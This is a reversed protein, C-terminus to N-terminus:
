GGRGYYRRSDALMALNTWGENGSDRQLDMWESDRWPYSQKQMAEDETPQRKAIAAIQEIDYFGFGERDENLALDTYVLPRLRDTRTNM